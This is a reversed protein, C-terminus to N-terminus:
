THASILATAGYRRLLVPQSFGAERLLWLQNEVTCPTDFHYLGPAGQEKRLRAGEAFGTDEEEQTLATYDAEVYVGGAKLSAAIKRYLASKEDYTFHHLTEASVAADFRLEGFDLELYDGVTLELQHLRHFFKCRLKELMNEALDIGFVRANPFRQFLAELELGTGCGLDLIYPAEAMPIAEALDRYYRDAGEVNRLMHDDYEEARANFFADMKELM